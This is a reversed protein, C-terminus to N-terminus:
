FEQSNDSSMQGTLLSSLSNHNHMQDHLIMVTSNNNSIEGGSLTMLMGPSLLSSPSQTLHSSIFSNNSSPSVEPIHILNESQKSSTTSVSQSELLQMTDPTSPSSDVVTNPPTQSQRYDFNDVPKKDTRVEDMFSRIKNMLFQPVEFGKLENLQLHPSNKYDDSQTLEKIDELLMLYAKGGSPPMLNKGSLWEKDEQDGSYRLLEPHRVYLRGRTQGYGLVKNAKAGMIFLTKNTIRDPDWKPGERKSPLRHLQSELSFNRPKQRKHSQIISTELESDTEKRKTTTFVKFYFVFILDFTIINPWLYYLVLLLFKSLCILHIILATNNM